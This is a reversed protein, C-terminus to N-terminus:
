ALLNEFLAGSDACALTNTTAFKKKKQLSYNLQEEAKGRRFARTVVGGAGGRGTDDKKKKKEQPIFTIVSCQGIPNFIHM